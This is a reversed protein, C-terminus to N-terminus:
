LLSEVACNLFLQRKRCLSCRLLRSKRKPMCRANHKRYPPPSIHPNGFMRDYVKWLPFFDGKLKVAFRQFTKQAFRNNSRQMCCSDPNQPVTEAM